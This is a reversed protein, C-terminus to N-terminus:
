MSKCQEIISNIQAREPDVKQQAVPQAASEVLKRRSFNNSVSANTKQYRKALTKELLANRNSEINKKYQSIVHEINEKIYEKSADKLVRRVFNKADTPLAATSEILYQTAESKSLQAKLQENAERLQKNKKSQRNICRVAEMVPQRVEEMASAKDVNLLQRLSQLTEMAAINKVAKRLQTTPLTRDITEEIFNSVSELLKKQFAISDQKVQTNYFRKVKAIQNEYCECIADVAKVFAKKHAEDIQCVLKQLKGNAEENFATQACKTALQVREDVKAEVLRNFAEGLKALKEESLNEVIVQPLLNKIDLNDM